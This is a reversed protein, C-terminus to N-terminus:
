CQLLQVQASGPHYLLDRSTAWSLHSAPVHGLLEVVLQQM